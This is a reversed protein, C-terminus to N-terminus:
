GTPASVCVTLSTLESAFEAFVDAYRMAAAEDHM